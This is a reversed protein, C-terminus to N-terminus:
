SAIWAGSQRSRSVAPTASRAATTPAASLAVRSRCLLEDKRSEARRLEVASSPREACGFSEGGEEDVLEHVRM